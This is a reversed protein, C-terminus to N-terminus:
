HLFLMKPPPPALSHLVSLFLHLISPPYFHGWYAAFFEEVEPDDPSTSGDSANAIRSSSKSQHPECLIPLYSPPPQSSHFPLEPTILCPPCTTNELPGGSSSADFTLRLVPFDTKPFMDHLLMCLHVVRINLLILLKTKALVNLKKNNDTM